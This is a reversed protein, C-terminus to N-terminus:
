LGSVDCVGHGRRRIPQPSVAPYQRQPRHVREHPLV